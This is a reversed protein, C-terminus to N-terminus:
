RTSVTITFPSAPLGSDSYLLPTSSPNPSWLYRIQTITEVDDSHIQVSDGVIRATADVFRGDTGAVKFGSPNRSTASAYNTTDAQPTYIPNMACLSTDSDTNFSILVTSSDEHVYNASVPIPSSSVTNHKALAIWQDAMRNAIIDKGLPHITNSTGKDTDISVTMFVNQKSLAVQMQAQRIVSWNTSGHSYRALQVFFFPLSKDKFVARYEDILSSFNFQYSYAYEDSFSDNEGQYWLIGAIRFGSLPSIHTNYIDGNRLHRYIPTGNWATQIIGIPINPSDRRLKEAFFQPLYGLYEANTGKATMWTNGIYERLPLDMTDSAIYSSEHSLIIFHVHRDNITEPLNTTPTVGKDTNNDDATVRYYDNYNLDMNSQGAALFVDGVYTKRVTALITNGSSVTLTYAKLQAPLPTLKAKFTGDHQSVTNTSSQHKGDYMTITLRTDADTSGQIIIPKDRQFVIGNMYYNPLTVIANPNSKGTDSQPTILIIAVFVGVILTILIIKLTVFLRQASKEFPAPLEM